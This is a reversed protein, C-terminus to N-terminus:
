SEEQMAGTIQETVSITGTLITHVIPYPDSPKSIEIDYVYTVGATLLNGDEPRIVCLIHSGDVSIEAYASIQSDAGLAGRTEAITFLPSEEENAYEELDFTAGSSDKPFVRFELTDGKYYSINYTGPFAL